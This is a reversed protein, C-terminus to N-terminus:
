TAAVAIFVSVHFCYVCVHFYMGLIQVQAESFPLIEHLIM